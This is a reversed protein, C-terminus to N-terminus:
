KLMYLVCVGEIIIAISSTIIIALLASAKKKNYKGDVYCDIMVPSHLSSHRLVYDKMSFFFVGLLPVLIIGVIGVFYEM